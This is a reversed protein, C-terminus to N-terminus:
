GGGSTVEAEATRAATSARDLALILAAVVVAAALSLLWLLVLRARLSRVGGMLRQAVGGM